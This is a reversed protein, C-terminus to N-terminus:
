HKFFSPLFGLVAESWSCQVPAQRDPAFVDPQSSAAAAAGASSFLISGSGSTRFGLTQLDRSENIQAQLAKEFHANLLEVAELPVEAKSFLQEIDRTIFKADYKNEPSMVNKSITIMVDESFVVIALQRLFLNWFDPPAIRMLEFLHVCLQDPNKEHIIKQYSQEMGAPLTSQASFLLRPFSTSQVGKYKEVVRQYLYILLNKNVLVDRLGNTETRKLWDICQQAFDPQSFKDWEIQLPKHDQIAVPKLQKTNVAIESMRQFATDLMEIDRTEHSQLSSMPFLNVLMTLISSCRVFSDLSPESSLQAQINLYIKGITSKIMKLGFRPKDDSDSKELNLVFQEAAKKIKEAFLDVFFFCYNKISENRYEYFEKSDFDTFKRCFLTICTSLEHSSLGCLMELVSSTVLYRRLKMQKEIFIAGWGTTPMFAIHLLGLWYENVFKKNQMYRKDLINKDDGEALTFRDIKYSDIGHIFYSNVCLYFQNLFFLVAFVLPVNFNILQEVDYQLLKKEGIFYKQWCSGVPVKEDNEMKYVTRRELILTPFFQNVWEWYLKEKAFHEQKIFDRFIWKSGDLLKACREVYEDNGIVPTQTIDDFILAEFKVELENQPM